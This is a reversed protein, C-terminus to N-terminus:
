RPGFLPGIAFESYMKTADYAILAYVFAHFAHDELGEPHVYRFYQRGSRMETTERELCTFQDIIWEIRSPEAWPLQLMPFRNGKADVLKILSIAKEVYFSRDAQVHLQTIREGFEERDKRELPKDPRQVYTCGLVTSAHKKQLESVQVAGYGLDAVCQKVNFLPILNSVVEAQRMLDKEQFRHVYLLRWRDWEDQAMIWVVTRGVGGGWDVGMYSRYPPDLRPMMHLRLARCRLVDETLLPKAMGAYFLGLVENLFRRESYRQRKAEISNPHKPPLAKIWPAMEQSIHYGSYLQNEPKRAIWCESELDWEKQDSLQWLKEFASGHESATGILLMEGHPSHSLTEEIVPLAESQVDQAEDVVVFDAPINRL